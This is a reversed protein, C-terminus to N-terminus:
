APPDFPQRFSFADATPGRERLLELKEGAEAEDPVHGDPVWWLVLYDSGMREFWESRRKMIDSHATKFVFQLLSELDEWVSINVLMDDGFPRFATANGAEDQLRWVFGPASDAIANIRDLNNMFDALEPSEADYRMQAINLQALHYSM